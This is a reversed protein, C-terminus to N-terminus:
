NRKRFLVIEGRKYLRENYAALLLDPDDLADVRQQVVSCLRTALPVLEYTKGTIQRLLKTM